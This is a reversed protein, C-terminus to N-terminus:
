LMEVISLSVMLDREKGGEDVVPVVLSNMKKMM